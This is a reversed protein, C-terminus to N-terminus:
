SISFIMVFTNKDNYQNTAFHQWLLQQMERVDEKTVLEAETLAIFERSNGQKDEKPKRAETHM